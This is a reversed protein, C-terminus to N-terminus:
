LTVGAGNIRAAGLRIPMILWIENCLNYIVATLTNLIFLICFIIFSPYTQKM